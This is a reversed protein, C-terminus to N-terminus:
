HLAFSLFPDLGVFNFQLFVRLIYQAWHPARRSDWGFCCRRRAQGSLPDPQVERDNKPEDMPSPRCQAKRQVARLSEHHGHIACTM